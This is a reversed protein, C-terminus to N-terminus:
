DSLRPSYKWLESVCSMDCLRYKREAAFQIRELSSVLEERRRPGSISFPKRITTQFFSTNLLVGLLVLESLTVEM